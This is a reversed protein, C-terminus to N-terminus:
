GILDCGTGALNVAAILEDITVEGNGDADFQECESLPTIGLVISVGIILEDVTVEGDGNCDGICPTGPTATPTPAPTPTPAASLTFNFNDIVGGSFDIRAIPSAPAFTVFNSPDGFFTAARSDATAVVNNDGDLATATGAARGFGHVYFFRVTEVPGDFTVTGGAASIGYSFSGSAYLPLIAATFVVGGSWNSGAVSFTTAGSTTIGREVGSNDFFLTVQAAATGAMTLFLGTLLGLPTLLAM